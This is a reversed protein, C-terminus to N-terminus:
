SSKKPDIAKGRFRLEFYVRKQIGRDIVNNKAIPEGPLVQNGVITTIEDMGSLISHYGKNNVIIVLKGYSRFDGAFMVTGEIPSVIYSNEKPKFLVGNKTLYNKSQGFNEIVEGRVPIKIKQDSNILKKSQKYKTEKVLDNINAAKKKIEIQKKQYKRLENRQMLKNKESIKKKLINQFSVLKEKESDLRKKQTRINSEVEEYEAYDLFFNDIDEKIMKLTNKKVINGIVNNSNELLFPNIYKTRNNKIENKTLFAINELINEKGKIKIRLIAQKQLSSLIELDILDIKNERDIVKNHINILKKQMSLLDSKESNKAEIKNELFFLFIINILIIRM